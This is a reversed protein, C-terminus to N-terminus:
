IHILSLIAMAVNVEGPITVGSSALVGLLGVPFWCLFDSAAVTALRNAIMMNKSMQSSRYFNWRATFSMLPALAVVPWLRMVFCAANQRDERSTFPFRTVIARGLVICCIIVASVECSLFPLFDAM